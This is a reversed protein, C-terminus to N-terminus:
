QASRPQSLVVVNSYTLFVVGDIKM